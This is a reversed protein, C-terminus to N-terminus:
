YQDIRANVLTWSTEYYIGGAWQILFDVPDGRRLYLPDAAFTTSDGNAVITGTFRLTDRVAVCTFVRVGRSDYGLFRSTLSYLGDEPTTWRVCPLGNSNDKAWLDVGGQISPGGHGVNGLYWGSAGWPVTMLDFATAEPGWKRGYSWVGNPNNTRSYEDAMMWSHSYPNSSTGFSWASGSVMGGKNDRAVILWCYTKGAVLGHLILTNAAQNSAVLRQPPCLSDVYVDYTVPDGDPDSCTWALQLNTPLHSAGDSPSVLVPVNPVHNQLLPVDASTTHGAVVAVVRSGNLELKGAVVAYQRPTLNDMRYYGAADSTTSASPPITYVNAGAVATDDSSRTIKGSISGTTPTPVPNTGKDKSCGTVLLGLVLGLVGLQPRM